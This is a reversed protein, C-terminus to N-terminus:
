HIVVCKLCRGFGSSVADASSHQSCDPFHYLCPFAVLEPAFKQNLYFIINIKQLM